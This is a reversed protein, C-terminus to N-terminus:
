VRALLEEALPLSDPRGVDCWRGTYVTGYLGGRAAIRDWVRNLSFADEAIEAATGPRIIQAGSYIFPAGRALRGDPGLSFDGSGRHGLAAGPPLLLLLAEMRDDWAADLQSLPNPGAWVADSNLTFVPAPGLLPIAAKLGGGTELLVPEHSIRIPRPALHARLQEARYHTNVVVPAAVAADTLRLAHDILPEGAVEVLAKPRDRTLAGMRTGLGAAFIMAPRSM